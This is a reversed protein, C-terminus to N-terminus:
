SLAATCSTQCGRHQPIGGSTSEDHLPASHDQSITTNHANILKILHTLSKELPEKNHKDLGLYTM